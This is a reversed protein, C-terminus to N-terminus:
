GTPRGVSILGERMAWRTLEVTKHINLKKMLRSRHNGVTSVGIGLVKACQKVSNGHALCILVDTERSTLSALPHTKDKVALRVGEPLLVLRRAIQPAFVRDGRAVQRLAAEIQGFPQQKTLYGAANIRLTERVNTDSLSDDLFIVKTHPCRRMIESAAEFVGAEGLMDMLVIDPQLCDACRIAEELGDATGVVEIGEIGHILSALAKQVLAQDDVLEVRVKAHPCDM